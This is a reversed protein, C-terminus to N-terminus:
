SKSEDPVISAHHTLSMAERYNMFERKDFIKSPHSCIMTARIGNRLWETHTKQWWKEASICQEFKQNKALTGGIGSVFTVEASKGLEIREKVAEELLIKMEEFPQMNEDVVFNYFSQIDLTLLNGRNVNDQYNSIKSAMKSYRITSNEKRNEADLPVYVTLQGRSLAENVYKTPAREDKDSCYVLLVHQNLPLNPSIAERKDLPTIL